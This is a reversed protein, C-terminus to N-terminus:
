RAAGGTGRGASPDPPEDARQLFLGFAIGGGLVSFVSAVAGAVVLLGLWERGDQGADVAAGLHSSVLTILCLFAACLLFAQIRPWAPGERLERVAERDPLAVLIALVTLSVALLAVSTSALQGYLMARENGDVSALLVPASSRWAWALLAAYLLAALVLVTAVPREDGARLARAVGARVAPGDRM